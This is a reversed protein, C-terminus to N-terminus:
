SYHFVIISNLALILTGLFMSLSARTRDPNDVRLNLCIGTISLEIFVAIFAVTAAHPGVKARIHDNGFLAGCVGIGLICADIGLEYFKRSLSSWGGRGEIIALTFLALYPIVIGELWPWPVTSIDAMQQTVEAMTATATATAIATATM